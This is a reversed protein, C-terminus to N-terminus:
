QEPPAYFGGNAGRNDPGSMSPELPVDPLAPPAQSLPEPTAPSDPPMQAQAHEQFIGHLQKIAHVRRKSLPGLPHAGYPNNLALINDPLATLLLDNSSSFSMTVKTPFWM